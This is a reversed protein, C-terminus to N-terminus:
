DTYVYTTKRTVVRRPGRTPDHFVWVNFKSEAPHTDAKLDAWGLHHAIWTQADLKAEATAEGEWASM